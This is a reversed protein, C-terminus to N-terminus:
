LKETLDVQLSKRLFQCLRLCFEWFLSFALGHAFPFQDFSLKLLFVFGNRLRPKKLGGKVLPSAIAGKPFGM